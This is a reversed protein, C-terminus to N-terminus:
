DNHLAAMVEALKGHLVPLPRTDRPIMGTRLMRRLNTVLLAPADCARGRHGLMAGIRIYEYDIVGINIDAYKIRGLQIADQIEQELQVAMAVGYSSLRDIRKQSLKAAFRKLYAQMEPDDAVPKDVNKDVVNDVPMIGKNSNNVEEEENIHLCATPIGPELSALPNRPQRTQLKFRDNEVAALSAVHARPEPKLNAAQHRPEPKLSAVPARPQAALRPAAPANVHAPFIKAAAQALAPALGAGVSEAAQALASPQSFTNGSTQVAPQSPAPLQHTASEGPLSLDFLAGPSSRQPGSPDSGGAPHLEPKILLAIRWTYRGVQEHCILGNNHLFSLRYTVARANINWIAQLDRNRIQLPPYATSRTRKYCEMLLRLYWVVSHPSTQGAEVMEVLRAAAIVYNVNSSM